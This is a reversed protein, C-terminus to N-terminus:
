MNWTPRFRMSAARSATRGMPNGSGKTRLVTLFRRFTVGRVHISTNICTEIILIKFPHAKKNFSTENLSLFRAKSKKPYWPIHKHWTIELNRNSPQSVTPIWFKSTNCKPIGLINYSHSRTLNKVEKSSQPSRTNFTQNNKLKEIILCFYFAPIKEPKNNKDWSYPPSSPQAKM